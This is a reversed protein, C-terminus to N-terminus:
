DTRRTTRARRGGGRLSAVSVTRRWEIILDAIAEFAGQRPMSRRAVLAITRTPAPSALPRAILSTGLIAGSKVSMEPVLGIGWGQDVMQVLTLLSTAEMGSTADVDKPSIDCAGLTHERLCHGEALLLLRAPDLDAARLSATKAYADTPLAVLWLEEHFLPRVLLDDTAYPLAILAIDLAGSRVRELLVPTLDERLALRLAPFRERAVPLVRPLLFPAITPIVGLTLPGTLPDAAAAAVAV